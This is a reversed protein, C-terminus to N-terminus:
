LTIWRSFVTEDALELFPTFGSKLAASLCRDGRFSELCRSIWRSSSFAALGTGVGSSRPAPGHSSNLFLGVVGVRGRGVRWAGSCHRVLLGEGWAPTV